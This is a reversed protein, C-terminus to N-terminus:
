RHQSAAGATLVDTPTTALVCQITRHVLWEHRHQKKQWWRLFLAIRPTPHHNGRKPNILTQQKEWMPMPQDGLKVSTSFCLLFQQCHYSQDPRLHKLDEWLLSTPISVLFWPPLPIMAVVEPMWCRGFRNLSQNTHKGANSSFHMVKVVGTRDSKSMTNWKGCPLKSFKM